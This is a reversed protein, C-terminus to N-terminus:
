RAVQQNARELKKEAEALHGAATHMEQQHQAEASARPQEFPEAAARQM